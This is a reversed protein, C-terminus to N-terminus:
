RASFEHITVSRFTEGPRLVTSPFNPHNPSDPFHQTELCLGGYPGYTQGGRGVVGSLHNATYLQVGPQTTLVRMTRGSAPDRVEAALALTGPTADIVFNHDYGGPLGEGKLGGIDRGVPKAATFDLPTGAVARYAGTPILAADVETVHAANLRLEHGLVDGSGALNWYTHNTLNLVTAKDTTAEYSISLEDAVTLKYTVAVQLTGPYGEEGDASTYTLRVADAGRPEAKWNRKDFGRTGGHLHHAGINKALTYTHGDLEFRGEAIRNAYRGAISGFVPHPKAYRELDDFGLTVEALKGHRDPVSMSVLTAGWTLVRARLGHPNTLTVVEVPGDAASQFAVAREVAADSGAVAFSLFAVFLSLRSLLTM